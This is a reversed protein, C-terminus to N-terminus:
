GGEEKHDARGASNRGKWNRRQGEQWIRGLGDRSLGYQAMIHQEVKVTLGKDKARVLTQYIGQRQEESLLEPRSKPVGQAELSAEDFAMRPRGRGRRVYSAVAENTKNSIADVEDVYLYVAYGTANPQKNRAKVYLRRMLMELGQRSLEGTAMAHIVVDKEREIAEGLVPMLRYGPVVGDQEVVDSPGTGKSGEPNQAAPQEAGPKMTMLFTCIGAMAIVSLGFLLKKM